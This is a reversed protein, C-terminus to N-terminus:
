GEFFDCFCEPRGDPESGQIRFIRGIERVAHTRGLLTVAGIMLTRSPTPQASMELHDSVTKGPSVRTHLQMRLACSSSERGALEFVHRDDAVNGLNKIGFRRESGPPCRCLGPAQSAQLFCFRM